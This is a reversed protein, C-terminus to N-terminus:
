DKLDKSGKMIEGIERAMSSIKVKEELRILHNELEIAQEDGLLKPVLDVILDSEGNDIRKILKLLEWDDLVEDDLKYEFGTSTAKKM